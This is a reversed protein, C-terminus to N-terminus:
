LGGQDLELCGLSTIACELDKSIAGGDLNGKERTCGSTVLPLNLSLCRPCLLFGTLDTQFLGLVISLSVQKRKEGKYFLYFEIYNKKKQSQCM